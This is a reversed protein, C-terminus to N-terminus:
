RRVSVPEWKREQVSVPVLVPGAEAEAEAEAEARVWRQGVLVARVWQLGQVPGQVLVVSYSGSMPEPPTNCGMRRGLCSCSDLDSLLCIVSEAGQRQAQM